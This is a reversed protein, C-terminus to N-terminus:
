AHSEVPAELKRYELPSIGGIRRFMRTFHAQDDYGIMTAIEAIGMGSTLLLHKAQEFQLENLLGRYSLGCEGLRRSMTRPSTDMLQAAFEKKPIGEALYPSLLVRLRDAFSLEANPLIEALQNTRISDQPPASLVARPVAIYGREQRARIHSNPFCLQAGKTVHNAEIGIEPPCWDTGLYHRMIALYAPLQYAQSSLYGPMDRLRPYHTYLLIDEKREEIGLGIDSAESSVLRAFEQLGRYLTPAYESRQLLKASVGSEGVFQGVYWGFDEGEAKAASDFTNWACSVKVFTNPDETYVPLGGARFHRRPSAGILALIRAFMLPHAMRM